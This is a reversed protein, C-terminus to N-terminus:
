IQGHEILLLIEQDCTTIKYGEDVIHTNGYSNVKSKIDVKEISNITENMKERIPVM